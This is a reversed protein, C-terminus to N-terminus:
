KKRSEIETKELRGTGSGAGADMDKYSKYVKGGRKFTPAGKGTKAIDTKQLRGEGGGSGAEMDKYSKAVKTVRGGSKRFMRPDYFVTSPDRNLANARGYRSQLMQQMEPSNSEPMAMQPMVPPAGMPAQPAGGMMGTPKGMDAFPSPGTARGMDGPGAFGGPMGAPKGLDAYPSPGTARGMDGPGAFGGPMGAPKGFGAFPSPGMARGMSPPGSFGGAMGAPKNMGFRGMGGQPAGMGPRGAGGSMSGGVQKAVRGGSKRPMPMGAPAGMPPGGAPMPMPMPMPPPAGGGDAPIPVPLGPPIGGMPGAPPAMMDNPGAPKGAAIMINIKTGAKSKTRGGAKRATRGGKNMGDKKNKDKDGAGMLMAPLAGGMLGAALGGGAKKAKGGNKLARLPSLAGKKLNTFSMTSSPVGSTEAASRMMEEAGAVPGGKARGGKKYHEAKGRSPKSLDRQYQEIKEQASLGTAGGSAHKSRGGRKMKSAEEAKKKLAERDEESYETKNSPAPESSYSSKPGLGLKSKIREWATSGGNQKKTRGGKKMGGIHKIGERDENAAKVDRNTKAKAYERAESKEEAMEKAMAKPMAKGGSKRPKRDMRPACAEGMVKGGSKYARRSIPRLGTKIDANIPEAPTWNSSDTKQDKEGALRRAKNKMAERAKKATDYM